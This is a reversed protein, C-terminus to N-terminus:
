FENNFSTILVARYKEVWEVKFGMNGALYRLPVMARSDKLRIIESTFVYERTGKQVIIKKEQDLWEVRAGLKECIARLPLMVRGQELYPEVDPFLLQEGDLWTQIKESVPAFAFIQPLNDPDLPLVRLGNNWMDSIYLAGAHYLIDAPGNLLSTYSDAYQGAKGTGAITIVEGQLTIARVRHNWTDAIFIVGNPAVAIGKPFNFRAEFSPGDRYDGPAYSTWQRTERVGALTSVQLDKIKRVLQNGSDLM